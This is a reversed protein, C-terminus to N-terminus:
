NIYINISVLQLIFFIISFELHFIQMVFAVCCTRCHPWEDAIHSRYWYLRPRCCNLRVAFCVRDNRPFEFQLAVLIKLLEVVIVVSVVDVRLILLRARM